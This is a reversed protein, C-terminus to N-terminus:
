SQASSTCSDFYDLLMRIDELISNIRKTEYKKQFQKNQIFWKVYESNTPDCYLKERNQDERYERQTYDDELIYNMVVNHAEEKPFITAIWLDLINEFVKMSLDNHILMQEVCKIQVLSQLTIMINDEDIGIPFLIRAFKRRLQRDGNKIAWSFLLLAHVYHENNAFEMGFNDLIHAQTEQYQQLYDHDLLGDEEATCCIKNGM